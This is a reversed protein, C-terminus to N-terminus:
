PAGGALVRELEPTGALHSIPRIPPPEDPRPGLELGLWGVAHWRGAKYGIAPYEGIWGFGLARHLGVSGDNPLTVGAVALHFGQLRLVDILATMCARGIGRRAFAEDVYVTTEVTWDYAARERHRSGYAYGRVVGDLEAVLWPTRELVRAIRGAMDDASPPVAEFSIASREVYPRYIAACAAGDAPTALRISLDGARAGRDAPM